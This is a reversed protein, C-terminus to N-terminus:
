IQSQFVLRTSICYLFFTRIKIVLLSINETLKQLFHLQKLVCIKFSLFESIKVSEMFSSRLNNLTKLVLTGSEHM